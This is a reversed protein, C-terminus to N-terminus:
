CEEPESWEAGEPIAWLDGDQYLTYRETKAIRDVIIGTDLVHAWAEWYWEHEPGEELTDLDEQTVTSKDFLLSRVAEQPIYVGWADTILLISSEPLEGTM